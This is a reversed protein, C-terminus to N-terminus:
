SSARALALRKKWTRAQFLLAGGLGAALLFLSGPEPTASGDINRFVFDEDNYNLDSFALLSDEFGVFTGAPITVDGRTEGSFPTAYVHNIGDRNMSPNSYLTYHTDKVQLALVLTDGAHVYGFDYSEGFSSTHDPLGWGGIRVGNDLLGLRNVFMASSGYFYAIVDGNNTAEFTAAPAIVGPNPYPMTDASLIASGASALLFLKLLSNSRM